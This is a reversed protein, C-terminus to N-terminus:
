LGERSKRDKRHRELGRGDSQPTCTSRKRGTEGPKHTVPQTWPRSQGSRKWGPPRPTHPDLSRATGPAFARPERQMEANGARVRKSISGATRPESVESPLCPLSPGWNRQAKRPRVRGRLALTHDTRRTVGWPKQVALSSSIMEPWGSLKVSDSGCMNQYEITFCQFCLGDLYVIHVPNTLYSAWITLCM